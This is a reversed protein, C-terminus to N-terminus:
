SQQRTITDGNVMGELDLLLMDLDQLSDTATDMEFATDEPGDDRINLAKLVAHKNDVLSETMTVDFDDNFEIVSPLFISLRKLTVIMRGISPEPFVTWTKTRIHERAPSKRMFTLEKLADREFTMDGISIINKWTQGKYQSYFKRTEKEMATNKAFTQMQDIAYPLQETLDRKLSRLRPSIPMNERAYVVRMKELLPLINPAFHAACDSVWPPRSNTVIVVRESLSAATCLHEYLAARWVGLAAGQALSFKVDAWLDPKSPIGV